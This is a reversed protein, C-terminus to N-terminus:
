LQLARPMGSRRTFHQMWALSAQAAGVECMLGEHTSSQDQSGLEHGTLAGTAQEGEGDGGHRSRQNAKHTQNKGM